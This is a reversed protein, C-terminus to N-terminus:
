GASSVLLLRLFTRIPEDRLAVQLTDGPGGCCPWSTGNGGYIATLSDVVRQDIPLDHNGLLYDVLSQITAKEATTLTHVAM